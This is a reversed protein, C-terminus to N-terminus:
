LRFEKGRVLLKSRSKEGVVKVEVIEQVADVDYFVRFDEIRVQEQIGDFITRRDRPRFWAIDQLASETIRIDFV